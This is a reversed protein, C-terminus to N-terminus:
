NFPGTFEPWTFEARARDYQGTLSLLQDRAARFKLTADSPSSHESM